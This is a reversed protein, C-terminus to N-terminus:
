HSKRPFKIESNPTGIRIKPIYNLHNRRAIELALQRSNIPGCFREFPLIEQICVPFDPIRIEITEAKKAGTPLHQINLRYTQFETIDRIQDLTLRQNKAPPGNTNLYNLMEYCHTSIDELKSFGTFKSITSVGFKAFQSSLIRKVKTTNPPFVCLCM